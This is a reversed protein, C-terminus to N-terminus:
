LTTIMRVGVVIASWNSYLQILHMRAFGDRRREASQREDSAAPRAVRLDGHHATYMVLPLTKRLGYRLCGALQLAVM